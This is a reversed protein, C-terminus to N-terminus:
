HDTKQICNLQRLTRFKEIQVQTRQNLFSSYDKTNIKIKVIITWRKFYTSLHPIFYKFLINYQQKIMKLKWVVTKRDTNKLAGIFPARRIVYYVFFYCSIAMHHNFLAFLITTKPWLTTLIQLRGYNTRVNLGYSFLLEHGIFYNLSTM